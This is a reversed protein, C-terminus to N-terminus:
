VGGLILVTAETAAVQEVKRLAKKLANSRGIIEEFNHNLKIEEQLYVNEAQLRNKFQKVQTLAQLLDEKAQVLEATRGEARKELEDLARQLLGEARKRAILDAGFIFVLDSDPVKKYTFLYPM